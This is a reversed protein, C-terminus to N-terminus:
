GGPRSNDLSFGKNPVRSALAPPAERADPPGSGTWALARSPVNGVGRLPQSQGGAM